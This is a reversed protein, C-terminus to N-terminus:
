PTRRALVVRILNFPRDTIIMRNGAGEKYVQYEKDDIVIKSCKEFWSKYRARCLIEKAGIEHLGYQKYVLANPSIDSVYGKLTKPNMRTDTTNNEYPDYDDGYGKYAFYVYVRTAVGCSELFKNIEANSKHIKIM